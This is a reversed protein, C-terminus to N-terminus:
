RAAEEWMRSIESTAWANVISFAAEFEDCPIDTHMHGSPCEAAWARHKELVGEAYAAVQAVFPAPDCLMLDIISVMM